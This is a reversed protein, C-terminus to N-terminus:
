KDERDGAWRNPFCSQQQILLRAGNDRGSLVLIVFSIPLLHKIERRHCFLWIDNAFSTLLFALYVSMLLFLTLVAFILEYGTHGALYAVSGALASVVVSLVAVIWWRGAHRKRGSVGASLEVAEL